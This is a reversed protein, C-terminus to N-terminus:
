PKAPLRVEDERCDRALLADDCRRPNLGHSLCLRIEQARGERCTLIAMESGISPNAKRFVELILAPAREIDAELARIPEPFHLAAFAARTQAFYAGPDLGSCAGHKRWQHRALGESGMIDLMSAVLQRDPPAHPTDCFVPWGGDEHQPWLGHVLWGAGAGSACRADGRAAGEAACWSPTWSLALVYYGDPEQRPQLGQWVWVGFALGALAVITLWRM